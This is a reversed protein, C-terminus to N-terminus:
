KWIKMTPKKGDKFFRNKRTMVKGGPVTEWFIDVDHQLFTSGHYNKGDKM